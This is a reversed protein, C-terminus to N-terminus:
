PSVELVKVEDAGTTASVYGIAGPHANVYAIVESNSPKEPPPLGRGSFIIQLWYSRVAATRKRHVEKSFSERTPSNPGDVPLVPTGDDWRTSRRLFLASVDKRALSTVPNARNVVVKYDASSPPGGHATPMRDAPTKAAVAAVPLLLWAMVTGAPLRLTTTKM